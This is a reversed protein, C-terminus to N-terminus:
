SLRGSVGVLQDFAQRSIRAQVDDLCTICRRLRWKSNVNAGGTIIRAQQLVQHYAFAANPSIGREFFRGSGITGFYLDHCYALFGEYTLTSPHVNTRDISSMGTSSSFSETQAPLPLEGQHHRDPTANRVQGGSSARAKRVLYHTVPLAILTALLLGAVFSVVAVPEADQWRAMRERLAQVRIEHEREERATQARIAETEAQVKEVRAAHMSPNLFQSNGLVVGFIVAAILLMGIFNCGARMASEM